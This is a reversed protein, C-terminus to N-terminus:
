KDSAPIVVKAAPDDPIEHAPVNQIGPQGPIVAPVTGVDKTIAGMVGRLIALSTNVGIGVKTIPSLTSWHIGAGVSLDNAALLTDIPTLIAIAASLLGTVTSKWHTLFSNM